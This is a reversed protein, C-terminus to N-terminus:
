GSCAVLKVTIASQRHTRETRGPLCRSQQKFSNMVQDKRRRELEKMVGYQGINTDGAADSLLQLCTQIRDM